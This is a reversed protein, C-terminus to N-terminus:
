RQATLPGPRGHSGACTHMCCLASGLRAARYAAWAPHCGVSQWRYCALCPLRAAAAGGHADSISQLQVSHLQLRRVVREPQGRWCGQMCASWVLGAAAAEAWGGRRAHLNGQAPQHVQRGRPQLGAAARGPASDAPLQGPLVHWHAGRRGPPLAPAPAAATLRFSRQHHRPLQRPSATSSLHARPQRCFRAAMLRM